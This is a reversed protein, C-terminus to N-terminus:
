KKIPPTQSQAFAVKPNTAEVIRTDSNFIMKEVAYIGDMPLPYQDMDYNFLPLSTPHMFLCEMLPAKMFKAKGRFELTNTNGDYLFSYTRNTNPNMVPHKSYTSLWARSQIRDLNNAPEGSYDDTGAYRIGDSHEDLRIIDPMKFKAILGSTPQTYLNLEPYYKQYCIAPLRKDKLYMDQLWACRGADLLLLTFTDEYRSQNFVQGGEPISQLYDIAQQTTM